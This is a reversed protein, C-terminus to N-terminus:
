RIAGEVNKGFIRAKQLLLSNYRGRERQIVNGSTSPHENIASRGVRKQEGRTKDTM